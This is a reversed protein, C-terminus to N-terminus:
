CAVLAPANDQGRVLAETFPALQQTVGDDGRGDQVPQQVVAVDEVDAALAVLESLLTLRTQEARMAQEACCLLPLRCSVFDSGM